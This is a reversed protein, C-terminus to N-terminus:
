DARPFSVEFRAGGLPGDSIAIVGGHAAAIEWVIALGLGAGGSDRDRAEDLRVFREFVRERNSEPIGTGDDDVTLFVRGDRADVTLAIASRGYRAANEVLNKVLRG